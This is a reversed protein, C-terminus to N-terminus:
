LALLILLLIFLAIIPFLLVFFLISFFGAWRASAVLGAAILYKARNKAFLHLWLFLPFLLLLLLSFRARKKIKAQLDACSTNSEQNKQVQELALTKDKLQTELDLIRASYNNNLILIEQNESVQNSNAILCSNLKEALSTKTENSPLIKTQGAQAETISLVLFIFAALLVSIIKKM